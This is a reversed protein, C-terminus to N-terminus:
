LLNILKASLFTNSKNQTFSKSSSTIGKQVISLIMSNCIVVSFL